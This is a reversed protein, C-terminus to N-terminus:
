LGFEEVLKMKVSNPRGSRGLFTTRGKVDEVVKVWFRKRKIYKICPYAKGIEFGNKGVWISSFENLEEPGVFGADGEKANYHYGYPIIVRVTNGPQMKTISNRVASLFNHHIIGDYPCYSILMDKKIAPSEKGVIWEDPAYLQNVVSPRLYKEFLMKQHLTPEDCYTFLVHKM